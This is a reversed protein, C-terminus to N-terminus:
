RPRFGSNATSSAASNAGRSSCMSTDLRRELVPTDGSSRRGGTVHTVCQLCQREDCPERNFRWLVHTPCVLWHEHAVYIRLSGNGLRLLEPGGVLSVNNFLVVDFAGKDVIERLRRGHVVPRGLQHTLLPSIVGLKSRLGIVHVGDQEVPQEPLQHSSLWQYADVDHIVTVHHGRAALARATRQVDIGDGGFNFPPYFTTLSCFRLGAM